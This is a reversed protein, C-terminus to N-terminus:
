QDNKGFYTDPSEILETLRYKYYGVQRRKNDFSGFKSTPAGELDRIATELRRKERSILEERSLSVKESYNKIQKLREKEENVLEDQTIPFRGIDLKAKEFITGKDEVNKDEPLSQNELESQVKERGKRASEQVEHTRRNEIGKPIDAATKDGAREKEINLEEASDSPSVNSFHKVGKEDTWQYMQAELNSAWIFTSFIIILLGALNM